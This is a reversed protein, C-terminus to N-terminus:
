VAWYRIHACTLLSLLCVFIETLMRAEPEDRVGHIRACVHDGLQTVLMEVILNDRKKRRAHTYVYENWGTYVSPNVDGRECM